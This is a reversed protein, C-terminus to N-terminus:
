MSKPVGLTNKKYSNMINEFNIEPLINCIEFKNKCM